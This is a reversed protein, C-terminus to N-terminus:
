LPPSLSLGTAVTFALRMRRSLNIRAGATSFAMPFALYPDDPQELRYMVGRRARVKREHHHIYEAQGSGPNSTM